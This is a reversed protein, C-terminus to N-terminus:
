KVKAVIDYLNEYETNKGTGIYTEEVYNLLHSENHSKTTRTAYVSRGFDVFSSIIMRGSHKTPESLDDFFYFISRDNGEIFFRIRISFTALEGIFYSSSKTIIHSVAFFTNQFILLWKNIFLLIYYFWHLFLCFM